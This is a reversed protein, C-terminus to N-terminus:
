GRSRPAMCTTSGEGAAAKAGRRAPEECRRACDVEAEWGEGGGRVRRRM